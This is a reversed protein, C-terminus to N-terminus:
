PCPLDCSDPHLLPGWPLYADNLKSQERSNSMVQEGGGGSSSGGAGSGASPLVQMQTINKYTFLTLFTMSISSIPFPLFM